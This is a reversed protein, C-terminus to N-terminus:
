RSGSSMPSGPRARTSANWRPAHWAYLKPQGPIRKRQASQAQIRTAKDLTDSLAQRVAMGLANAKRELERCLRGVITRQRKISRRM